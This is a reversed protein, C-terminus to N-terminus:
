GVQKVWREGECVEGWFPRVIQVVELCLQAMGPVQTESKSSSAFPLWLHSGLSSGPRWNKQNKKLIKIYKIFKLSPVFFNFFFQLGPIADKTAM